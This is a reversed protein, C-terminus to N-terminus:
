YVAERKFHRVDIMARIAEPIRESPRDSRGAIDGLYNVTWGKDGRLRRQRSRHQAYGVTLPEYDMFDAPMANLHLFGYKGIRQENL